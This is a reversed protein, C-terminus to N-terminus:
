SKPQFLGFYLKADDFLKLKIFGTLKLVMPGIKKMDQLLVFVNDMVYKLIMQVIAAMCISGLDYAHIFINCIKAGPIFQLYM